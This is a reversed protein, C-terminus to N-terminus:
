PLELTGGVFERVTNLLALGVLHALGVVHVAPPEGTDLGALLEGDHGGARGHLVNQLLSQQLAEHQVPVDATGVIPCHVRWATRQGGVSHARTVLYGGAERGGGM